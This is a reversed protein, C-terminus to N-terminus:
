LQDVQRKAQVARNYQSSSYNRGGTLALIKGDNPNMMVAAVELSSDNPMINKINNELATQAEIDLNTYIKLGGTDLFSSPIADITNLERIVADQYYMVTDLDILDKKGIYHLEENLAKTMDDETIYKNKVMLQLINEQRQKALKENVLPSYNSPSKPIGTLMAAEALTLDAASKDFYFKAANEIGYMGHGYNITNLYGELIEDKTYHVELELTLWLEDWKRKLTKDFDLFLNKAYQQSITSAGEKKSHTIINTYSAKIIRLFDFGRHKYFNKDESVITANILDKSINDLAIWEKSGTGQFFLQNKNDYLALSNASKIQLKPTIKAYAYALINGIIFFAIIFGCIKLSKKLAKM